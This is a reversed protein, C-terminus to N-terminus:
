TEALTGVSRKSFREYGYRALAYLGYGILCGLTNHMVDDFETCGRKLSFQLAEISLSIFVGVIVVIRWRQVKFVFGLLLGIPIFVVVNMINEMYLEPKAYSWFPMLEYKRNEGAERLFVTSSFILFLYEILMLLLVGKGARKRKSIVLIVVGVFFVSLLGEYVFDPISDILELAYINFDEAM